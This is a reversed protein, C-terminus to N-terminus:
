LGHLWLSNCTVSCVYVCACVGGWVSYLWSSVFTTAASCPTPLPLTRCQPAFGSIQCGLSATSCAGFSQACLFYLICESCWILSKLSISLKTWPTLLLTILYTFLFWLPCSNNNLWQTTDSEALEHVAAHWAKRDRVIDWLKGLNVNMSDTIGDLWKM